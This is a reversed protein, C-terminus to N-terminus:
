KSIRHTRLVDDGVSYDTDVIRGDGPRHAESRSLDRAIFTRLLWRDAGDWRARYPTRGHFAHHNDVLLLDGPELRISIAVEDASRRLEDLAAQATSDLGTTEAFDARIRPRSMSGTLVRIPGVYIPDESGMGLLFSADVTTKFRPQRLTEVASESLRPLMAEISSLTTGAIKDHDARLCFLAVYDPRDDTFASEVHKYLESNSSISQQAQEFGAVPVIDQIIHGAMEPKFGYQDGIAATIIGLVGAAPITTGVSQEPASPTPPIEFIPCERILLGGVPSGYRRFIRLCEILGAPLCPLCRHARAVFEEAHSIVGASVCTEAAVRLGSVEEPSLSLTVESPRPGHAAAKQDHQTVTDTM